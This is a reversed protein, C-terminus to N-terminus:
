QGKETSRVLNQAVDEPLVVGTAINLLVDSNHTFSHTMWDSSFCGMMKKVDEEDRKVRRPTAEKHSAKEGDQPRYIDKLAPTISAQKSM